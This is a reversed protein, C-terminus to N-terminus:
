CKSIFSWISLCSWDIYCCRSILIHNNFYKIWLSVCDYFDRCSYTYYFAVWLKDWYVLIFFLWSNFSTNSRFCERFICLKRIFSWYVCCRWAFFLNNYYCFYSILDNCFDRCFYHNYFRLRLIHWNIFRVFLWSCRLANTWFLIWIACCKLVFSWHVCCCWTFFIYNNNSFVSFILKNFYWSFNFYYFSFFM